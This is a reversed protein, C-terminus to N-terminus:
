TDYKVNEPVRRFGDNPTLFFYLQIIITNGSQFRFFHVPRGIVSEKVCTSDVFTPYYM